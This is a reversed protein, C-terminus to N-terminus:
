ASARAIAVLRASYDRLVEQSIGQDPKHGAERLLEEIVLDPVALGKVVLSYICPSRGTRGPRTPQTIIDAAGVVIRWGKPTLSHRRSGVPKLLGYRILDSRGRQTQCTIGWGPLGSVALNEGGAEAIDKLLVRWNSM